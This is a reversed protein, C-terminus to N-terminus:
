PEFLPEGGYKETWTSGKPHQADRTLQDLQHLWAVSLALAVKTTTTIIKIPVGEKSIKTPPMTVYTTFPFFSGRTRGRFRAPIWHCKRDHINSQHLIIHIHRNAVPGDLNSALERDEIWCHRLFLITSVSQKIITM